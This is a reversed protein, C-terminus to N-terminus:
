QEPGWPLVSGTNADQGPGHHSASPHQSTQPFTVHIHPSLPMLSDKGTPFLFGQCRELVARHELLPFLMSIGQQQLHHPGHLTPCSPVVAASAELSSCFCRSAAPHRLWLPAWLHGPGIGPCGSLLVSCLHRVQVLSSSQTQAKNLHLQRACPFQAPNTCLVLSIFHTQRRRCGM